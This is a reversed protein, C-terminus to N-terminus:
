KRRHDYVEFRAGNDKALFRGARLTTTIAYTPFRYHVSGLATVTNYDLHGFGGEYDRQRVWDVSLDVAWPQRQPIYMVQGGVGSFMLEYIGAQARAYLSELSLGYSGLFAGFRGYMLCDSNSRYSSM